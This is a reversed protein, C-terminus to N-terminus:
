PAGLQRATFALSATASTGKLSNAAAPALRAVVCLTEQASAALPRPAPLVQQPTGNFVTPGLVSTGSCSGARNGASATGSNTASGGVYVAFTLGTALTGSATGTVRYTSGVTGANSVTVTTAVSEGPVVDSLAFAAKTYTGGQGPLNADLRVDLTGSRIPTVSMAEQDRWFASTTGVGLGLVLGLTL